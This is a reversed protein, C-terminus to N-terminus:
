LSNIKKLIQIIKDDNFYEQPIIKLSQRLGNIDNKIQYINQVIIIFIIVILLIGFIYFYQKVFNSFDTIIQINTNNIQQSLDSFVKILLDFGKIFYETHLSSNLFSYMDIKNPINQSFITQEYQGILTKMSEIAGLTGQQFYNTSTNSSCDLQATLINGLSNVIPCINGKLIQLLNDIQSQSYFSLELIQNLLQSEYKPISIIYQNIQDKLDPIDAIITNYIQSFLTNNDKLYQDYAVFNCFVILNAAIFHLQIASYNVNIPSIMGSNQQLVMITLVVYFLGILFFIIFLLILQKIIPLYYDDIQRQLLFDQKLNKKQQGLIKTENQNVRRSNLQKCNNQKDASKINTTEDDQKIFNKKQQNIGFSMNSNNFSHNLKFQEQSQNQLIVDKQLSKGLFNKAFSSQSLNLHNNYYEKSLSNNSADKENENNRSKQQNVDLTKSNTKSRNFPYNDQTIQKNQDFGEGEQNIQSKQREQKIKSNIINFLQNNYNQEQQNETHKKDHMKQFSLDTNNYLILLNEQFEDLNKVSNKIYDFQNVFYQLREYENRGQYIKLQCFTSLILQEYKKNQKIIPISILCIIAVFVICILTIYIVKQNLSTFLSFALNKSCDVINLLFKTNLLANKRFYLFSNKQAFEIENKQIQYAQLGSIQIAYATNIQLATQLNASYFDYILTQNIQESNQFEQIINIIFNQNNLMLSSYASLGTKLYSEILNQIPYEINNADIVGMTLQLNLYYSYLLMNYNENFQRPLNLIQLQNELQTIDTTIINESTFISIFLFLFLLIFQTFYQNVIKPMKTNSLLDKIYIIGSNTNSNRHNLNKNLKIEHHTSKIKVSHKGFKQMKKFITKIKLKKSSKEIQKENKFDGIDAQDEKESQNSSKSSNLSATIKQEEDLEEEEEENEDQEDVRERQNDISVLDAAVVTYLSKFLQKQGRDHINHNSKYSQEQKISVMSNNNEEGDLLSEKQFSDRAVHDESDIKRIDNQFNSQINFKSEIDNEVNKNLNNSDIDDTNNQINSPNDVRAQVLQFSDIASKVENNPPKINQLSGSKFNLTSNQKLIQQKQNKRTSKELNMQDHQDFRKKLQDSCIQKDSETPFLGQYSEIYEEQIPKLSSIQDQQLYFNQNFNDPSLRKAQFNKSPSKDQAYYPSQNNTFSKQMNYDNDTTFSAKSNQSDLMSTETTRGLKYNQQKQGISKVTKYSDFGTRSYEVSMYNNFSQLYTSKALSNSTQLQRDIQEKAVVQIKKICLKFYFSKQFNESVQNNTKSFLQNLYIPFCCQYLNYEFQLFKIEQNKPRFTNTQISNRTGKSSTDAYQKFYTSKLSQLSQFRKSFFENVSVQINQDLLDYKFQAQINEKHNIFTKISRFMKQRSNTQLNKNSEVFQSSDKSFPSSEVNNKQINNLSKKLYVQRKLFQDLQNHVSLPDAFLEISAKSNEELLIEGVTDQDSIDQRNYFTSIPSQIFKQIFDKKESLASILGYFISHFNLQSLAQMCNPVKKAQRFLLNLITESLGLIQGEQNFLVYEQKSQLKLLTSIFIFQNQNLTLPIDIQIQVPFIFGKYNQVFTRTKGNILNIGPQLNAKQAQQKPIGSYAEEYEFFKQVFYDHQCAIFNPMLQKINDILAFDQKSKFGFFKHLSESKLLLKGINEQSISTVICILENNLQKINSQFDINAEGKKNEHSENGKALEKSQIELIQTQRKQALTINNHLIIDILQMLRLFNISQTWMYGSHLKELQQDIYNQNKDLLNITKLLDQRMSELKKFGIETFNRWFKYKNEAVDLIKPLISNVIEDVTYVIKPDLKIIFNASIGIDFNTKRQKKIAEEAQNYHKTQKQIQYFQNQLKEFLQNSFIKEILSFYFSNTNQSNKNKESKKLIKLEFYSKKPNNLYKNIYSIYKLTLHERTLSDITQNTNIFIKFISEIFKSLENFDFDEYIRKKKISQKTRDNDVEILKQFYREKCHCSQHECNEIHSRLFQFVKFKSNENFLSTTCIEMFQEIFFDFYFACAQIDEKDLGNFQKKSTLIAMTKLIFEYKRNYISIIFYYM